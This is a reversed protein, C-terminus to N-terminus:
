VMFVDTFEIRNRATKHVSFHRPINSGFVFLFIDLLLLAAFHAATSLLNVIVFPLPKGIVLFPMGSATGYKQSKYYGLVKFCLSWLLIWLKSTVSFFKSYIFLCLISNNVSHLICCKENM